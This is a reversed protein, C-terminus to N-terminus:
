QFRRVIRDNSPQILREGRALGIQAPMRLWHLREGSRRLQYGCIAVTAPWVGVEHEGSARLPFRQPTPSGKACM